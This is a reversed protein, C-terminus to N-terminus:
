SGSLTADASDFVVAPIVAGNHDLAVPDPNPNMPNSPSGELSLSSSGVSTVNFSLTVIKATAGAVGNGSGGNSKTVGVIVRGSSQSAQVLVGQGGSAVLADGAVASNPVYTAVAANGLVIDFAFSYLDLAADPGDIIVDVKVVSGTKSSLALRVHDAQPATGSSTFDGTVYSGGGGGYDNGGCSIALSAAIAFLAFVIRGRLREQRM